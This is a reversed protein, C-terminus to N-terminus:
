EINQLAATTYQRHRSGCRPGADPTETVESSNDIGTPLEPSATSPFAGSPMLGTSASAGSPTLRTSVSAGTSMSTGPRQSSAAALVDGENNVRVNNNSPVGESGFGYEHHHVSAEASTLAQIESSEHHYVSAEAPMLAQIESPILVGGISANENCHMEKCSLVGEGLVQEHVPEFFQGSQSNSSPSFSSPSSSATPSINIDPSQSHIDNWSPAVKRLPPVPTPTGQSEDSTLYIHHVAEEKEGSDGEEENDSHIPTGRYINDEDGEHPHEEEHEKESEEDITAEPLNYGDPALM